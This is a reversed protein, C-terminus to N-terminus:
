EEVLAYIIFIDRSATYHNAVSLWYLMEANKTTTLPRNWPMIGWWASRSKFTAGKQTKRTWWGMAAEAWLCSHPLCTSWLHLDRRQHYVSREMWRPLWEPLTWLGQSCKAVFFHLNAAELYIFVLIYLSRGQHCHSKGSTTRPHRPTHNGSKYDWFTSRCVKTCYRPSQHQCGGVDTIFVNYGSHSLASSDGHIYGLLWVLPPLHSFWYFSHPFLLQFMLKAGHPFCVFSM